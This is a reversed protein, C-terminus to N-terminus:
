IEIFKERHRPEPVPCSEHKGFWRYRRRAIFDYGFDLVAAPLIGLAASAKWFGGLIWLARLAAQGKPLVAESERGHNLVLYMADLDRSDKGHRALVDQAFASQLSAFRFRDRRDREILFRVLRNCLGCVGDYLVVATGPSVGSTPTM